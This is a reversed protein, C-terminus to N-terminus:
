RKAKETKKALWSDADKKTAAANGHPREYNRSPLGAVVNASWHDAAVINRDSSQEAAVDVIKM